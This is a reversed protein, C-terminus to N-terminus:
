VWRIKFLVASQKTRFAIVSLEPALWESEELNERCWERLAVIMDTCRGRPHTSNTMRMRYRHPIGEGLDEEDFTARWDATRWDTDDYSM